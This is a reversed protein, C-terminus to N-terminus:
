VSQADVRRSEARVELDWSESAASLLDDPPDRSLGRESRNGPSLLCWSLGNPDRIEFETQRYASWVGGERQDYVEARQYGDLQQLFDGRRREPPHLFAHPPTRPVADAEFGLVEQYWRMTTAIDGVLCVPTAGRFRGTASAQTM